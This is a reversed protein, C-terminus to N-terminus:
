PKNEVSYVKVLNQKGRLQIEDKFVLEFSEKLQLIQKYAETILLRSELSNCMSQVRAATNLVDGHFAIERKIQGVEAVTVLGCNIGAKFEPIFGFNQKYYDAKKNILNQFSIFFEVVKLNDSSNRIKWTLVTEDGVYQYIEANYNPVLSNLDSFCEQILKSYKIHGLKEAYTTSSKLDIFIFIREEQKPEHYKGLIMQLLIGPGFKNNIERIFSGIISVVGMYILFSLYFTNTFFEFSKGVTEQFSMGKIFINNISMSLILVILFTILYTTSKVLIIVGFSKKEKRKDIIFTDAFGLITGLIIAAFIIQPILLDYRISKKMIIYMEFNELGIFKILVLLMGAIVNLIVQYRINSILNTKRM